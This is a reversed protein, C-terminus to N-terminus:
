CTVYFGILLMSINYFTTSYIYMVKMRLSYLQKNMYLKNSLSKTMYLTELRCWLGATTEENMVNNLVEDSLCLM